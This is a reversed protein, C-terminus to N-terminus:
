NEMGYRQMVEELPVTKEEGKRIRELVQEALYVDELDEIARQLAEKVYFSKSRHTDHALTTFRDDLEDDIRVSLTRMTQGEPDINTIATMSTM